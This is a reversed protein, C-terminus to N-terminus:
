WGEGIGAIVIEGTNRKKLFTLRDEQEVDAAGEKGRVVFGIVAVYTNGIEKIEKLKVEKVNQSLWQTYEGNVENLSAREEPTLDRFMNPVDLGAVTYIAVISDIDESIGLVWSTDGQSTREVLQEVFATAEEETVPVYGKYSPSRSCGVVSSYKV